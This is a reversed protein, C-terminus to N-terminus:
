VRLLDGRHRRNGRARDRGAEARHRVDCDPDKVVDTVLVDRRGARLPEGAREFLAPALHLARGVRAVAMVRPGLRIPPVIEIFPEQLVAPSPRSDEVTSEAIKRRAAVITPWGAGSQGCSEQTCPPGKDSAASRPLTTRTRNKVSGAHGKQLAVAGARFSSSRSNRSRPRM